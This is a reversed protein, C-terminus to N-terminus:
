NRRQEASPMLFAADAWDMPMPPPIDPEHGARRDVLVTELQASMEAFYARSRVTHQEPTPNPIYRAVCEASRSGMPAERVVISRLGDRWSLFIQHHGDLADVEVDMGHFWERLTM